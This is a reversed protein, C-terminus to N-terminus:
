LLLTDTDTNVQDKDQDSKKQPVHSQCMKWSKRGVNQRQARILKWVNAARRALDVPDRDRPHTDVGDRQGGGKKATFGLGGKPGM